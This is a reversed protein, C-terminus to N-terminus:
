GQFPHIRIMLSVTGHFVYSYWLGVFILRNCVSYEFNNDVERVYVVSFVDAVRICLLSWLCGLGGGFMDVRHHWRLTSICSLRGPIVAIAMWCEHISGSCVEAHYERSCILSWWGM